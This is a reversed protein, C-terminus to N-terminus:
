LTRVLIECGKPTEEIVADKPAVILNKVYLLDVFCISTHYGLLICIFHTHHPFTVALIILITNIIIFPALLTFIYRKKSIITKIRMRIIPIFKYEIRMRFKVFVRYNFLSYYHILKHLPYLLLLIVVFVWFYDDRYLTPHIRNFVLYSFSFVLIFLSTVMISIWTSGYEKKINITKWCHLIFSGM